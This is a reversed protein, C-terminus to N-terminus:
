LCLSKIQHYIALLHSYQGGDKARGDRSTEHALCSAMITVSNLFKIQESQYKNLGKISRHHQDIWDGAHCSDIFILLHKGKGVKEWINMLDTYRM